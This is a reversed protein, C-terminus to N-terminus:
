MDALALIWICLFNVEIPLLGFFFDHIFYILFSQMICLWGQYFTLSILPLNQFEWETLLFMIQWILFYVTFIDLQCRLNFADCFRALLLSNIITFIISRINYSCKQSEYWFTLSKALITVAIIPSADLHIDSNNFCNCKKNVVIM